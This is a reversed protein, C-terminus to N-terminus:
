YVNDPLQKRSDSLTYVLHALSELEFVNRAPTKMEKSINQVIRSARDNDSKRDRRPADLSVPLITYGPVDQFSHVSGPSDFGSLMAAALRANQEADDLSEATKDERAMFSRLSRMEPTEISDIIQATAQRASLKAARTLSQDIVKTIAPRFLHELEIRTPDNRDATSIFQKVHSGALSSLYKSQHGRGPTSPAYIRSVSSGIPSTFQGTAKDHYPNM